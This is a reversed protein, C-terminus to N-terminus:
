TKHAPSRDRLNAINAFSEPHYTSHKAKERSPEEIIGAAFPQSSLAPQNGISPMRIMSM